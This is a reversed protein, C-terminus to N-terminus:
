SPFESLRFDALHDGVRLGVLTYGQDRLEDVSRFTFREDAPWRVWRHPGFADYIFPHETIGEELFHSRAPEPVESCHSM